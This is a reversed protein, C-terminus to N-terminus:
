FKVTSGAGRLPLHLHSTPLHPLYYASDPAPLPQLTIQGGAVSPATVQWMRLASGSVTAATLGM